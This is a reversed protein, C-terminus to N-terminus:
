RDNSEGRAADFVDPFAAHIADHAQDASTNRKLTLLKCIEACKRVDKVRKAEVEALKRTLEEIRKEEESPELTTFIRRLQEEAPVRENQEKAACMLGSAATWTRGDPATLTWTGKQPPYLNTPTENSM